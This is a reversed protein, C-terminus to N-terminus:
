VVDGMGGFCWQCVGIGFDDDTQVDIAIQWKAVVVISPVEDAFRDTNAGQRPRVPHKLGRITHPIIYRFSRSRQSRNQWCSILACLQMCELNWVQM